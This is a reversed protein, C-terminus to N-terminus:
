SYICHLLHWISPTEIPKYRSIPKKNSLKQSIEDVKCWTANERYIINLQFKKKWDELM